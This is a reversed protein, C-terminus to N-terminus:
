RYEVSRFYPRYDREEPANKRFALINRGELGRFDTLIDDHRGHSSANGFVFVYSRRWGAGEGRRGRHSVTGRDLRRRQAYYSATM